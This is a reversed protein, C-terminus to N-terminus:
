AVGRAHLWDAVGAFAAHAYACGFRDAASALTPPPALMTPSEIGLAALDHRLWERKGDRRAPEVARVASLASGRGVASQM